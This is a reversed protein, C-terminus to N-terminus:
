EVLRDRADRARAFHERIAEADGAELARLFADVSDRFLVLSDRLAERNTLCIDRWMEPPSSAIRTTSKFGGAIFSRLTAEAEGSEAVAHVMAAAAVHPMHSIAAAVRDHAVPDFLRPRAGLAEVLAVVRATVAEPTGPAPTVLYTAGEFLDAQGAEVGGRESGAMPHGGVFYTGEPLLRPLREVLLSKTSGVDTVVCGVALAPAMREALELMALVPSALVVLDAGAVGERLDMTAEDVAGLRVALEVTEARRAVGVVREALGRARLAMGLSGGVMGVGVIAVRRWM